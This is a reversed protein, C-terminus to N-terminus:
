GCISVLGAIRQEALAHERKSNRAANLEPVAKELFPSMAPKGTPPMEPVLQELFAPAAIRQKLEGLFEPYGNLVLTTSKAKKM